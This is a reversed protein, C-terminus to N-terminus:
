PRIKGLWEKQKALLSEKQDDVPAKFELLDNNKLQKASISKIVRSQKTIFSKESEVAALKKQKKINSEFEIKQMNLQIMM